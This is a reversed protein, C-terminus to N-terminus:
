CFEELELEKFVVFDFSVSGCHCYFVKAYICSGKMSENYDRVPPSLFFFLLFFVARGFRYAQQEVLRGLEM